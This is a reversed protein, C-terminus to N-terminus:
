RDAEKNLELGCIQCFRHDKGIEENQCRPCILESSNSLNLENCLIQAFIPMIETAFVKADHPYDTEVSFVEWADPCINSLSSSHMQSYLYDSSGEDIHEIDDFAQRAQEKSISGQKRWDLIEKKWKAITKDFMVSNRDSVKNLLYGEADRAIEILFHKFSKRGRKPWSYNYAGYSSHCNFLGGNEEITFIAWDGHGFRIDYCQCTSKEFTYEM